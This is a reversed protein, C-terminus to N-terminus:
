CVQQELLISTEIFQGRKQQVVLNLRKQCYSDLHAFFLPSFSLETEGGERKKDQFDPCNHLGHRSVLFLKGGNFLLFGEVLPDKTM